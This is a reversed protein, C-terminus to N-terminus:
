RFVLISALMRVMLAITFANAFDLIPLGDIITLNNWGYSWIGAVTVLLLLNVTMWGAFEWLIRKATIPPRRFMPQVAMVVEKEKSTEEESM